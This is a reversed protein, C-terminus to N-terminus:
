LLTCKFGNNHNQFSHCIRVRVWRIGFSTIRDHQGRAVYKEFKQQFLFDISSVNKSFKYTSCESVFIVLLKRSKIQELWNSSFLIVLSHSDFRHKGIIPPIESIRNNRLDLWRLNPLCDFLEEPLASIANGELYLFQFCFFFLCTLIALFFHFALLLYWIERLWFVTLFFWDISM